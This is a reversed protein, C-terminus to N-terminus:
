INLDKTLGDWDLYDEIFQKKLLVPPVFENFKGKVVAEIHWDYMNQQTSLVQSLIADLEGASGAWKAELHPATIWPHTNQLGAATLAYHLTRLQRTGVWPFIACRLESLQTVVNELIGCGRTIYRIEFLRERCRQSLYPYDDDCVLVHRMKQLLVTHMDVEFSVDWDVLSIGPVRKVFLVKSKENVDVTEWTMGALAFRTGVPYVKDVTGITRNEDKVLLEEPQEFVALFRYSNVQKEGERGIIIGDRETKELQSENLLHSLLVRFDDQSVKNFAGMSLVASALAAPSM